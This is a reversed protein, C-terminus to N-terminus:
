LNSMYVDDVTEKKFNHTSFFGLDYYEMHDKHYL